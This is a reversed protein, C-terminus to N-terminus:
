VIDLVEDIIHLQKTAESCTKDKLRAVTTLAKWLAWGRARVWTDSDLAMHSKFLKRSEGALLTWAIVLDCAPDGVGMCGFDIVAILQNDKVLINGVSFDGHVWVLKKDWASSLASHWVALAASSDICGQLQSIAAKIELDYVALSGGRWFNHAGALPGGTGDIAHLAKLFQALQSGLLPSPDCYLATKGEIWRYISWEFPYNISPLGLALPEPISFPIRPALLPLWTQEKKVQSAYKSASPLRISMTQGLRFTRNDWGGPKVPVIPLHAWHPFQSTILEAALATTIDLADSLQSM